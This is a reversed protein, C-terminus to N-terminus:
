GEISPEGSLRDLLDQHLGQGNTLLMSRTDLDISRGNLDTLYAGAERCIVCLAAIDLINLDSEIVADIKGAALLHYHLFDGYGRHRHVSEIIEGLRGWQASNAALSQINGLSITSDILGVDSSVCISQDNLFAGGGKIAWAMENFMPANSVGLVLEGQYMLAIQTSFMPYGRVFSKTGDIPDILWLFDSDNSSRGLEEGYFGHEPFAEQLVARIRQESEIDAVSVPSKDSKYEVSFQQQYYHRIVDEAAKAAAKAVTLMAQLNLDTM